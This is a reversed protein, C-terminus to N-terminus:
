NENKGEPLLEPNIGPDDLMAIIKDWGSVRSINTSEGQNSPYDFLFVPYGRKAVKKANSLNDEVLFKMHPFEKVIRDEKNEDWLIADYPIDNKNLWEITDAFIRPYEKYPRASLLVISYGMQRLDHLALSAGEVMPLNAKAGSSRYAHKLDKVAKYDGDFFPALDDYLDGKQVFNIFKMGTQERIFDMFGEPYQALVGDIDIAVVNKDDVLELNKEQKYRQEVVTSKRWYEEVFEEPTVDWTIAISLLYKFVDILEEVLNKRNVVKDQKRHVKWNIERLVEDLESMIHLVHEKTWGQRTIDDMDEFPIINHNFAKQNEFIRRLENLKEDQGMM